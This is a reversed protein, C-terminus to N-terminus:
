LLEMAIDEIKSCVPIQSKILAQVAKLLTSGLKKKKGLEINNEKTVQYTVTERQVKNKEKLWLSGAQMMSLELM